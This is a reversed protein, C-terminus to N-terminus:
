KEVAVDNKVLKRNKNPFTVMYKQVADRARNIRQMSTSSNKNTDILACLANYGKATLPPEYQAENQAFVEIAVIKAEWFNCEDVTKYLDLWKGPLIDNRVKPSEGKAHVMDPIFPDCQDVILTIGSAVFLISAIVWGVIKKNERLGERCAWLIAAVFVPPVLYM